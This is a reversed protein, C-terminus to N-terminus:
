PKQYILIVNGYRFTLTNVLQLNFPKEVEKFLPTGAGLVVPNVILRYEDILNARNLVFKPLYPNISFICNRCQQLCIAVVSKTL